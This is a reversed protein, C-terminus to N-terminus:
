QGSGRRKDKLQQFTAFEKQADDARGLKQYAQALQYHINADDPALRSAGELHDVAEAASGQALLIKGLLYRADAFGPRAKLVARLLKVAEEPQNELELVAALTHRARVNDAHAALEARLAQEAEPLRGQKFYIFGLTANADAVRPDLRLAKQLSEVAADYEGQQARAQGVLVGLEPTDGHAALLRAFVREADAFRGSRVLGLGYAYQLAPDSATQSDHELLAAAKDYAEVNLYTVALMRRVDPEPSGASVLRELPKAAKDYQQANFYAVALAYQAQPFGADAVVAEEFFEAARAFRQRQTHMIGLNMYARALTTRTRRELDARRAGSLDALASRDLVPTASTVDSPDAADSLYRDLREREGAVAKASSQQAEAFHAAAEDLAGTQRLALALQYQVSRIRAEDGPRDGSLELARRFSVVADAARDIHLQCRGLYYFADPTADPARVTLELPALAEAYRQAEVLAMGLRLNTAVDTPAIKLEKQFEEIADDVRTIGEAMVAVTGLYYHARRVRPNMKLATELAARARDYRGADRYTRGILVYTEARPRAKAVEGFLREAADLKKVRLYGSALMFTLEPDDPAAGHAEEMEQVAEEGQGNAVLAQALLRHAQADKTNRGVLRTLITVARAADGMQLHVLALAQFAARADVAASSARQFADSAESLRREDARLTGIIMWGALATERYRSEAMQLEGDRLSTEAAASLRELAAAPDVGSQAKVRAAGALAAAVGLMALVHSKRNNV